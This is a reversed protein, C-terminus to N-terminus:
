LIEPQLKHNLDQMISAQELPLKTFVDETVIRWRIQSLQMKDNITDEDTYHFHWVEAEKWAHDTNFPDDLYGRLIREYKLGSITKQEFILESIPSQIQPSMMTKTVVCNKFFDIMQTQTIWNQESDTKFLSQFQVYTCEGPIFRVPLTMKDRRESREIIFELVTSKLSQWRLM